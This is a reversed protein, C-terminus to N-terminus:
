VIPSWYCHWAVVGKDKNTKIKRYQEKAWSDSHAINKDYQEQTIQNSMLLKDQKDIFSEVNTEIVQETLIEYYM